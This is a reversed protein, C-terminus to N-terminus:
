IACLVYIMTHTERRKACNEKESKAGHRRFSQDRCKKAAVGRASGLSVLTSRDVDVRARDLQRISSIRSVKLSLASLM